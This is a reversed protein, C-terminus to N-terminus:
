KAKGKRLRRAKPLAVLGTRRALRVFQEERRLARRLARSNAPNMSRNRVCKARPPVYGARTMYGSKNLHFGKPCGDAGPVAGPLMPAASPPIMQGGFALAGGPFAVTGVGTITPLQAPSIRQPRAGGGLARAVTGIPGPAVKGVLSLAKGGLKLLKKHVFPDGRAGVLQARHYPM